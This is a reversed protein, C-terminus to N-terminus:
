TPITYQLILTDRAVISVMVRVSKNAPPTAPGIHEAVPTGAPINLRAIEAPTDALSFTRM